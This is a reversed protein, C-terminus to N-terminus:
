FWLHVKQQLKLYDYLIIQMDINGTMHLEHHEVHCQSPICCGYRGLVGQVVPGGLDMQICDTPQSGHSGCQDTPICGIHAATKLSTVLCMIFHLMQIYRQFSVITQTKLELNAAHCQVTSCHDCWGLVELVVQVVLGVQIYGITQNWYLCWQHLPICWLHLPM